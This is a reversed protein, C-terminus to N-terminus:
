PCVSPVSHHRLPPTCALGQAGSGAKSCWMGRSHHLRSAGGIVVGLPLTYSSSGGLLLVCLVLDSWKRGQSEGLRM